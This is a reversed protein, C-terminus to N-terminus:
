NKIGAGGLMFLFVCVASCLFCETWNPVKSHQKMSEM